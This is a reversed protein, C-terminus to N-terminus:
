QTSKAATIDFLSQLRHPSIDASNESENVPNEVNNDDDDDHNDGNDGLALRKVLRKEGTAASYKATMAPSSDPSFDGKQRKVGSSPLLTTEASSSTGDTEQGEAAAPAEDYDVLKRATPSDVPSTSQRQSALRISPAFIIKRDFRKFHKDGSSIRRRNFVDGDEDDDDMKKKAPLLERDFADYDLTATETLQEQLVQVDADDNSSEAAASTSENEDHEFYAEEDRDVTSWARETAAAVAAVAAQKGIQSRPSTEVASANELQQEYCHILKRGCPSYDIREFSPRFQEV